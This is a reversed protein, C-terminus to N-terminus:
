SILKWVTKNNIQAKPTSKIWVLMYINIKAKKGEYNSNVVFTFTQLCFQLLRVVILYQM